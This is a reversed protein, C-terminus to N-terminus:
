LIYQVITIQKIPSTGKYGKIGVHVHQLRMEKRFQSRIRCPLIGQDQGCDVVGVSTNIDIDIYIRLSTVASCLSVTCYGQGMYFEISRHHQLIPYQSGAPRARAKGSFALLRM